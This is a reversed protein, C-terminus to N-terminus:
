PCEALVLVVGFRKRIMMSQLSFCGSSREVSGVVACDCEEADKFGSGVMLIRWVSMTPPSLSTTSSSSSSSM